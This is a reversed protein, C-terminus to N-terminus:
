LIIKKLYLVLCILAVAATEFMNSVNLNICFNVHILLQLWKKFKIRIQRGCHKLAILKLKQESMKHIEKKMFHNFRRDFKCNRDGIYEEFNNHHGVM